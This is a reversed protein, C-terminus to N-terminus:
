RKLWKEKLRKKKIVKKQFASTYYYLKDFVDEKKKNYLVAYEESIIEIQDKRTTIRELNKIRQDFTMDKHFRMRNLDVLYFDYGGNNNKKILTNGPSHDLFEIGENHILFTFRTFEKLIKIHDSEDLSFELLDRFLFDYQIHECVYYSDKLTLWSFNEFYAVPLPTGIGKQILLNGYEYSRRAKSKRFFKYIIGNFLSPIKFIKVNLVKGEYPIIKIQNRTGITFDAGREKLQMLLDQIKREM